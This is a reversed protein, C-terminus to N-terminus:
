IEWVDPLDAHDEYDIEEVALTCENPRGGPYTRIAGDGPQEDPLVRFAEEDRHNILIDGTRPFGNGKEIFTLRKRDGIM